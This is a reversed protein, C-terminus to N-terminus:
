HKAQTARSRRTLLWQGPGTAATGLLVRWALRRTWPALRPPIAAYFAAGADRHLQWTICPIHWERGGSRLVIQPATLAEFLMDHLQAPLEQRRQCILALQAPTSTGDVEALQGLLTIGDRCPGRVSQVPGAFRLIRAPM